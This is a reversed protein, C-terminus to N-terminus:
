SASLGADVKNISRAILEGHDATMNVNFGFRITRNLIDLTRPCMDESYEVSGKYMPHTWPSVGPHHVRKQLISDWYRYIHRDPFGDNHATGSPVGEANLAKAFTEAMERSNVVIAGSIGCDGAPDDQHQAVFHRGPELHAM